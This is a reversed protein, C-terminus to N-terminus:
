CVESEDVDLELALCAPRRLMALTMMGLFCTRLRM